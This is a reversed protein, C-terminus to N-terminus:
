LAIIILISFHLTRNLHQLSYEFHIPVLGAYRRGIKTLSFSNKVKNHYFIHIHLLNERLM